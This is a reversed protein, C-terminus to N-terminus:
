YDSVCIDLNSNESIYKIGGSSYFPIGNANFQISQKEFFNSYREVKAQKQDDSDMVVLLDGSSTSCLGRPKWGKLRIVEEEVGTNKVINISCRSYDTYLLYGEEKGISIDKPCNGSRTEFSRIIEGHLNYLNIIKNEGCTWINQDSQCAINRFEKLYGGYTTKLTTIVKPCDLLIKMPSLEGFHKLITDTNIQKPLFQPLYATFVHPLKRLEANKSKYMTIFRADKSDLVKKINEIWSSINGIKIKIEDRQKRLAVDHTHKM